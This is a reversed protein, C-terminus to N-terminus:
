EAKSYSQNFKTGDHTQTVMVTKGKLANLHGIAERINMESSPLEVGCAKAVRRAVSAFYSASKQKTEDNEANLTMWDNVVAGGHNPAQTKLIWQYHNQETYRQTQPFEVGLIVAQFTGCTQDADAFKSVGDAKINTVQSLIMNEM